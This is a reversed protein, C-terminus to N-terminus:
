FTGMPCCNREFRRIWLSRAKGSSRIWETVCVHVCVFLCMLCMCVTLIYHCSSFTFCGFDVLDMLFLPLFSCFIVLYDCRWWGFRDPNILPFFAAKKRAIFTESLNM